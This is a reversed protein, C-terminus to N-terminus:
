RNMSPSRTSWPITAVPLRAACSRACRSYSSASSGWRERWEATANRVSLRVEGHSTSGCVLCVYDNRGVMQVWPRWIRSRQDVTAIAKWGHGQVRILCPSVRNSCTAVSTKYGSRSSWAFSIKINQSSRICRFSEIQLKVSRRSANTWYDMYNWFSLLWPNLIYENIKLM